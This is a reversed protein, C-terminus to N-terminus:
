VAEDPKDEPKHPRIDKRAYLYCRCSPDVGNYSVRWWGITWAGEDTQITYAVQHSGCVRCERSPPSPWEGPTHKFLRWHDWTRLIYVWNIYVEHALVFIVIVLVVLSIENLTSLNPIAM